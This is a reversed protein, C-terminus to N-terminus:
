FVYYHGLYMYILLEASHIKIKMNTKNKNWTPLNNTPWFPIREVGAAEHKIRLCWVDPPIMKVALWLGPPGSASKPM